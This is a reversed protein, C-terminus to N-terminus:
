WRSSPLTESWVKATYARGYEHALHPLSLQVKERNIIRKILILMPSRPINVPAEGSTCFLGKSKLLPWPVFVLRNYQGLLVPEHAQAKSGTRTTPGLGVAVQWWVKLVPEYYLGTSCTHHCTATQSPPGSSGKAGTPAVLRNQHGGKSDSPLVLRHQLNHQIYDKKELMLRGFRM